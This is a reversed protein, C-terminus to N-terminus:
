LNYASWSAWSSHTSVGSNGGIGSTGNDIYLLVGPDVNTAVDVWGSGTNKQVKLRASTSAGAAELAVSDGNSLSLSAGSYGAIINQTGAVRAILYFVSGDVILVYGTDTISQTRVAIAAFEFGTGIVQLVGEARQDSNQAGSYQAIGPGDSAYAVKKPSFNSGDIFANGTMVTYNTQTGLATGDSYTQFDDSFVLTPGSAVAPALGVLSQIIM